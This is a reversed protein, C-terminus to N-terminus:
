KLGARIERLRLQVCSEIVMEGAQRRVDDAVMDECMARARQEDPSLVQPAPASTTQCAALMWGLVVVFVRM